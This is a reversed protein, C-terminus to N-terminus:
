RKWQSSDLFSGGCFLFSSDPREETCGPRQGCLGRTSLGSRPGGGPGASRFGAAWIRAECGGHVQGVLLAGQRLQHLGEWAGGKGDTCWSTPESVVTGGPLGLLAAPCAPGNGPFQRRGRGGGGAGVSGVEETQDQGWSMEAQLGLSLSTLWFPHLSALLGSSVSVGLLQACQLWPSIM